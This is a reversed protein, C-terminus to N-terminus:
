WSDDENVLYVSNCSLNVMEDRIKREQKEINQRLSFSQEEKTTLILSKM